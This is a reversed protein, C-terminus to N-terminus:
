PAERPLRMVFTTTGEASRADLTGGHARIIENAIYLGLGLNGPTKERQQARRFPEFIFPLVDAPIPDGQNRIEVVVHDGDSRAAVTVATGPDAYQIANGTVNSVVEALRDEDWTGTVDGVVELTVPSEFEEVVNRCVEHLDTPERDLALGGGLRARTLDLVQSIMRSMRQTSRIIRTTTAADNDDLHGRRLLLTAALVISELPNRLDHGLIGIFMERFEAVTRLERESEVARETAVDAAEAMEHARITATILKANAERQDVLITDAQAREGSLDKDTAERELSLVVAEDRKRTAREGLLVADATSREREVAVNAEVIDDARQRAVRVVADAADEVAAQTEAHQDDAKTREVRLSENTQERKPEVPGPAGADASDTTTAKPM